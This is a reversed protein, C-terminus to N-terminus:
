VSTDEKSANSEKTEAIARVIIEQDETGRSRSGREPLPYRKPHDRAEEESINYHTMRRETESKPEGFRKKRKKILDTISPFKKALGEHRYIIACNTEELEEVEWGKFLEKVANIDEYGKEGLSIVHAASSRAIGLSSEAIEQANELHELVYMSIVSDFTGENFPLGKALDFEYVNHNNVSCYMIDEQDKDLGIANYGSSELIDLLRGKGSGIELVEDGLVHKLLAAANYIFCEDFEMMKNAYVIPEQEEHSEPEKFEEEEDESKETPVWGEEELGKVRGPKARAPQKEKPPEPKPEEGEVPKEEVKRRAEATEREEEEAVEEPHERRRMMAAKQKEAREKEKEAQIETREKIKELRSEQEQEEKEKKKESEEEARSRVEAREEPTREGWEKHREKEEQDLKKQREQRHLAPSSMHPGELWKEALILAEKRDEPMRKNEYIYQMFEEAEDERTFVGWAEKDLPGVHFSGDPLGVIQVEPKFDPDSGSYITRSLVFGAGSPKLEGEIVSVGENVHWPAPRSVHYGPFREEIIAQAEDEWTWEPNIEEVKPHFEEAIPRAEEESIRERAMIRNTERDIVEEETLKKAAERRTERERAAEEPSVKEKPKEPEEGEKPMAEEGIKEKIKEALEPHTKARMKLEATHANDTHIDRHDRDIPHCFNMGYHKHDEPNTCEDEGRRGSGPGGKKTLTKLEDLNSKEIEKPIGRAYEEAEELAAKVQKRQEPHEKLRVKLESIHARLTRPDNHTQDFPHCFGEDINEGYRPHRHMQPEECGEEVHRGSGPGGKVLKNLEELKSM